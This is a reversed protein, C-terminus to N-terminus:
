MSTAMKWMEHGSVFRPNRLFAVQREEEAFTENARGIREIRVEDMIYGSTSGALNFRLQYHNCLQPVLVTDDYTWDPGVTHIAEIKKWKNANDVLTRGIVHSDDAPRAWAGAKRAHYHATYMQFIQAPQAMKVWLSIKFVDGEALPHPMRSSPCNSGMMRLVM